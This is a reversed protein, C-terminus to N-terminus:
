CPALRRRHRVAAVAGTVKGVHSPVVVLRSSAVIARKGGKIARVVQVGAHVRQFELGSEGLQTRANQWVTTAHM